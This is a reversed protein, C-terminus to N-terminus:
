KKSLSSNKLRLALQWQGLAMMLGSVVMIFVLSTHPKLERLLRKIIQWM